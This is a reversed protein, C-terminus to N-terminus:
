RHFRRFRGGRVVAFNLGLFAPGGWYYPYYPYPYWASAYPAYPYSPAYPYAAAAVAPVSEGKAAMCQAYSMDYRQQMAGGSAQATGIGTTGGLFLGSGAGIAAGVAPNGTAAGIAAGAAAGLVTGLAASGVASANAAAAPSSNGIQASAYQRCAVDDAQFAAFDKGKGPLAMVSPGAPPTAACGGLALFLAVLTARMKM